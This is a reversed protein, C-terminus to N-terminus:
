CLRRKRIPMVLCGPKWAEPSVTERFTMTELTIHCQELDCTWLIQPFKATPYMKNQDAPRVPWQSWCFPAQCTSHCHRRFRLRRRLLGSLPCSGCVCHFSMLAIKYTIRQQVPLWYLTNRIVPTIHEMQSTGTILRAAANSSWKYVGLWAMLLTTWSSQRRFTLIKKSYQLKM